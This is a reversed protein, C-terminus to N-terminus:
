RGRTGNPTAGCGRICSEALSALRTEPSGQPVDEVSPDFLRPHANPMPRFMETDSLSAGFVTATM